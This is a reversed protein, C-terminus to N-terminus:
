THKQSKKRHTNKGKKNIKRTRTNKRNKNNPKRTRTNTKHKGGWIQSSGYNQPPYIGMPPPTQLINNGSYSYLQSGTGFSM